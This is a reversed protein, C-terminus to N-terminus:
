LLHSRALTVVGVPVVTGTLHQDVTGGIELVELDLPGLHRGAHFTIQLRDDAEQGLVAPRPAEV